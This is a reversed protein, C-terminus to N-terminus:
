KDAKELKRSCICEKHDAEAIQEPALFMPALASDGIRKCNHDYAARFEDTEYYFAGSELHIIM